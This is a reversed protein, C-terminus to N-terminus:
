DKEKLDAIDKESDHELKTHDFFFDMKAFSHGYKCVHCEFYVWWREGTEDALGGDHLYGVFQDMVRDKRCTGFCRITTGKWQKVFEGVAGGMEVTMIKDSM